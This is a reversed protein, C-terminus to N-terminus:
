KSPEDDGLIFDRLGENERILEMYILEMYRLADTIKMESTLVDVVKTCEHIRAEIAELIEETSKM